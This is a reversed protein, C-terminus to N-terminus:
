LILFVQCNGFINVMCKLLNKDSSNVKLAQVVQDHKKKWFDVKHIGLRVHLKVIVALSLIGPEMLEIEKALAKTKNSNEQM